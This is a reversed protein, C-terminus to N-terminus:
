PSPPTWRALLGDWSMLIWLRDGDPLVTGAVTGPLDWTQREFGGVELDAIMLRGRWSQGPGWRGVTSALIRGPGLARVTVMQATGDRPQLWLERGCAFLGHFADSGAMVPAGDAPDHAVASLKLVSTAPSAVVTGCVSECNVRTLDPDITCRELRDRQYTRLMGDRGLQLTHAAELATSRGPETLTATVTLTVPDIAQVQADLPAGSQTTLIWWRQPTIVVDAIMAPALGNPTLVRRRIERLDQDYEYATLTGRTEHLTFGVIRLPEGEASIQRVGNLCNPARGATSSTLVVSDLDVTRWYGRMGSGRANPCTGGDTVAVIARRRPADLLFGTVGGGRVGRTDVFPNGDDADVTGPVKPTGDWVRVVDSGPLARPAPLDRQAEIACTGDALEARAHYATRDASWAEHVLPSLVSGVTACGPASPWVGADVELTTTDSCGVSWACTGPLVRPAGSCVRLSRCSAHIVDPTPCGASMWSAGLPLAPPAIEAPAGDVWGRAWAATPLLGCARTELALPETPDVADELPELQDARFGLVTAQDADSAVFAAGRGLPVLPSRAEPEVVAVFAIDAPPALDLAADCALGASATLAVLAARTIVPARVRDSYQSGQM